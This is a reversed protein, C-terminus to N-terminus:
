PKGWRADPRPTLAQPQAAGVQRRLARQEAEPLAAFAAREAEGQAVYAPDAGDAGTRTECDIELLPVYGAALLADRAGDGRADVTERDKVLRYCREDNV